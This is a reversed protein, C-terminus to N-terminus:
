EDKTYIEVKFETDLYSDPNDECDTRQVRAGVQVDDDQYNQGEELYVEWEPKSMTDDDLVNGEGDKLEWLIDSDCGLTPVEDEDEDIIQEDTRGADLEYGDGLDIDIYTHPGGEITASAVLEGETETQSDTRKETNNTQTTQDQTTEPTSSNNQGTELESTIDTNNEPTGGAEAGNGGNSGTSCGALVALSTAATGELYERRKM